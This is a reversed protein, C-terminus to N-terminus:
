IPRPKAAPESPAHVFTPRPAAFEQVLADLDRVVEDILNTLRAATEQHNIIHNPTHASM